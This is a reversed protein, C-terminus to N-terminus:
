AHDIGKLCGRELFAKSTKLSAKLSKAGAQEAVLTSGRTLTVVTASLVHVNGPFEKWKVPVNRIEGSHTVPRACRFSFFYHPFVVKVHVGVRVCM